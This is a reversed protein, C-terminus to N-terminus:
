IKWLKAGNFDIEFKDIRLEYKKLKIKADDLNNGNYKILFYGGGGAGLLKLVKFSHSELLEEMKLLEKNIVGKLSKKLKWSSILTNELLLSLDECKLNNGKDLFEKTLDYINKILNYSESDNHIQTLKKFASRRIGTDVLFLNSVYSSISKKILDNKIISVKGNKRFEVINVGGLATLYQDQRGIPQNCDKIEIESALHAADFNSIKKDKIAYLGKILAVSFSSSSGLGGGSLDDGFSSMEIPNGLSIRQLSKRILPHSINDCDQYDERSSYNLIGKSSYKKLKIAITSYANISFGITLGIGHSNVFWDLDSGGGLLSIRYPCKSIVIM